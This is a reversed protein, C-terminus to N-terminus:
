DDDDFVGRSFENRNANHSKYVYLIYAAGDDSSISSCIFITDKSIANARIYSAIPDWKLIALIFHVCNRPCFSFVQRVSYAYRKFRFFIRLVFFLNMRLLVHFHM